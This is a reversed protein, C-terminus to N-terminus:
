VAETQKKRKPWHEAKPQELMTITIRAGPKDAYVKEVSQRAIQSDDAWVIGTLADEVGRILKTADPRVTHYKPAGPKLEGNSRYHGKIRPMQFTVCLELPSTLLPLNTGAMAIAAEQSVTGKWDRSKANADTIIVRGAFKGSSDTWGMGKRKMAFGRKSGAPQPVGQVQIIIPNMKALGSDM